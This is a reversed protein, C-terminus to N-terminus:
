GRIIPNVKAILNYSTLNTSERFIKRLERIIEKVKKPNPYM